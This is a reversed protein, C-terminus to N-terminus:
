SAGAAVDTFATTGTVGPEGEMRYLVAVLMARTMATNPSFTTDSTGAFLGENYVFAVDDYFWDSTRVDTFPLKDATIEDM